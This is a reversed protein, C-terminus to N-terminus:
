QDDLEPEDGRVLAPDLELQPFPILSAWAEEPAEPNNEVIQQCLEAHLLLRGIDIGLYAPRYAKLVEEAK